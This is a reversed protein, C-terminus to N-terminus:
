TRRGPRAQGPHTDPNECSPPSAPVREWAIVAVGGAFLGGSLLMPVAWWQRM